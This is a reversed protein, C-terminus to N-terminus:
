QGAGAVGKQAGMVKKSKPVGASTNITATTEATVEAIIDEMAEGMHALSERAKQMAIVGTKILAKAIPKLASGSVTGLERAIVGTAFGSIFGLGFSQFNFLM